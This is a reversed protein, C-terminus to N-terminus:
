ITKLEVLQKRSYRQEIILSRRYSRFTAWSVGLLIFVSTAVLSTEYGLYMDTGPIKGLVLFELLGSTM